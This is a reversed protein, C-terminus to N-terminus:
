FEHLHPELLRILMDEEFSHSVVAVVAGMCLAVAM